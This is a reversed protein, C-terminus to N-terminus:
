NELLHTAITNPPAGLFRLFSVLKKSMIHKENTKVAYSKVHAGQYLSYIEKNRKIKEWVECKSYIKLNGDM